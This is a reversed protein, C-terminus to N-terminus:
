LMISVPCSTEQSARSFIFFTSPIILTRVTDHSQKKHINKYIRNILSMGSQPVDSIIVIYSMLVDYMAAPLLMGSRLVDNGAMFM